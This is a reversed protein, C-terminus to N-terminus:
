DIFNNMKIPFELGFGLEIITPDMHHVRIRNTQKFRSDTHDYYNGISHRVKFSNRKLVM